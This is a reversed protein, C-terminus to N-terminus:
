MMALSCVVKSSVYVKKIYGTRFPAGVIGSTIKVIDGKDFYALDIEANNASVALCWGEEFIIKSTSGDSEIDM